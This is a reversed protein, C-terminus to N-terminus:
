ITETHSNDANCQTEDEDTHVDSIYFAEHSSFTLKLGVPNMSESAGEVGGKDKKCQFFIWNEKM